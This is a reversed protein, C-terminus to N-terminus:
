DLIIDYKVIDFKTEVDSYVFIKDEDEKPLVTSTIARQGDNVFVEVSYKDLIIRLTIEGNEDLDVPAKTILYNSASFRNGVSNTRDLYVHGDEYFVDVGLGNDNGFVTVGTKGSAPKFKIEMDVFIGSLNTDKKQETSISKIDKNTRYKELEPIPNQILKGDATLTLIRPITMAGAWGLSATLPSRNWSQMWAVMIRRGQNDIMTQPAYFDFGYDIEEINDIHYNELQGTEYNMDGVIYVTGHGNRHGPIDQPSMILVHKGNLEFLDPCEFMYGLKYLTNKNGQIVPGVFNWNELDTSSFLLVQGFNSIQRSGIVTYYIGDKEFLKPDRFDIPNAYWPLNTDDIVPKGNFLPEFSLGDKSKALVQYQYGIWNETYMIYLEDNIVLASGSFAAGGGADLIHPAVAIPQYEWKIMDKSTVHGWHMPGWVPAYPNHQYFLHYNDNFYVFGNPDNIWGIEGMVHFRYRKDALVKSKYLNIYYDASARLDDSPYGQRALIDSQYAKLEDETKILVDFGDINIFGDSSEDIVKVYIEKGIYDRLDILMRQYQLTYIEGDYVTSKTEDIINETSKDIIQVSVGDVNTNGSILFTIYGMGGLIFTSSILQGTDKPNNNEMHYIGDQMYKKTGEFYVKDSIKFANGQVEWFTDGNEFSPNKLVSPDDKEKNCATFTFMLLLVSIYLMIKKM